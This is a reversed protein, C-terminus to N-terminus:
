PLPPYLLVPFVRGQSTIGVKASVLAKWTGAAALGDARVVVVM